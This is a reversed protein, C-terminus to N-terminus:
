AAGEDNLASVPPLHMIRDPDISPDVERLLGTLVRALQFTHEVEGFKGPIDGWSVGKLLTIIVNSLSDLPIRYGRQYFKLIRLLSGGAEEDRAPSTYVLRKAAVDGYFRESATTQWCAKAGSAFPSYWIAAQAITFDFSSLAAEPSAFSWRHIFQLPLGDGLLTIANDTNVARRGQMLKASLLTAEDKSGSFIDIDNPKEGAITARIFGGAVFAKPGADKLVAALDHPLHRWVWFADHDLLPKM